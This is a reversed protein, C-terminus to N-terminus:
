PRGSGKREWEAALAAEGAARALAAAEARRARNLGLRAQAQRFTARAGATDGSRLRAELLARARAWNQEEGMADPDLGALADWRPQLFAAIAAWDGLARCESLFREELDPRPPILLLDQGPAPHIAMLLPRIPGPGAIADAGAWAEWLTWDVPTRVLAEDVAERIRGAMAVMAPSNAAERPLPPSSDRLLSRLAPAGQRLAAEWDAATPGWVRADEDGALPARTKGAAVAMRAELLRAQLDLRGPAAAAARAPAELASPRHLGTVLAALETQSPVTRGQALIRAGEGLLAWRAGPGWGERARLHDGLHTFGFHHFQLLPMVAWALSAMPEARLAGELAEILELDGPGALVVWVPTEGECVRALERAPDSPEVPHVQLPRAADRWAQALDAHGTSAALGTLEERIAERRRLKRSVFITKAAASGMGVVDHGGFHALVLDAARAAEATRGLRLLAELYPRGLVEWADAVRTGGNPAPVEEAFPGIPDYYPRPTWAQVWAPRLVAALDEWAGAQLLEPVLSPLAPDPPWAGDGPRLRALLERASGRGTLRRFTNWAAWLGPNRPRRALAAELDAQRRALAEMFPASARGLALSELWPKWEGTELADWLGPGSVFRGVEGALDAWRPSGPGEASAVRLSAACWALWGQVQEPHARHFAELLRFAPEIGAGALAAELREPGPMGEGQDLIRASRDVLIWHAGGKWGQARALAQALPTGAHLHWLPLDHQALPGRRLLERFREAAPSPRPPDGGQIFFPDDSEGEEDIWFWSAQRAMAVRRLFQRGARDKEGSPPLTRSPVAAAPVALILGAAASRLVADIM